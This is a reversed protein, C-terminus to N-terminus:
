LIGFRKVIIRKALRSLVRDALPLYLNATVNVNMENWNDDYTIEAPRDVIVAM